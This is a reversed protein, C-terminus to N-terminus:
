SSLKYIRDVLAAGAIIAMVSKLAVLLHLYDTAEELFDLIQIYIVLKFYSLPHPRLKAEVLQQLLDLLSAKKYVSTPYLPCQLDITSVLWPGYRDNSNQPRVIWCYLINVPRM